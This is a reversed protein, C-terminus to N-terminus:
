NPGVIKYEFLEDFISDLGVKRKKWIEQRELDLQM